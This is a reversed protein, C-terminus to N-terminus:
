DGILDTTSSGHSRDGIQSRDLQGTRNNLPCGKVILVKDRLHVDSDAVCHRDDFATLDNRLDDSLGDSATLGTKGSTHGSQPVANTLSSSSALHNQGFM